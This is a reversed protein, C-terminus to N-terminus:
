LAAVRRKLDTLSTAAAIAAVLEAVIPDTAAQDGPPPALLRTVEHLVTGDDDLVEVTVTTDDKAIIRETTM